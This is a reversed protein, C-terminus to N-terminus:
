RQRAIGSRFDSFRFAGIAYAVACYISMGALVILALAWYRHGQTALQDSLMRELGWLAAGMIAAAAIVRPLRTRLRDDARAADGMRRTGWWLQATMAWGALTTGLAAAIFGFVPALGIAVAANIAMSWIAFRFPTATDERAFYLPRVGKHLM